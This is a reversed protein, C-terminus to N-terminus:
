FSAPRGADNWEEMSQLLERTPYEQIDTESYGESLCKEYHWEQFDSYGNLIRSPAVRTAAAESVLWNRVIKIATDFQGSHVEIDCGSLDSIAAQYRYKVEELVLLRKGSHAGDSYEKCGYDIGLEFPMNLRYYQGVASAQSRSLDHISYKSEHILKTIKALRNESSDNNELAIRPKFDLFLICFLIAQLIPEYDEDFPCNVFVNREFDGM